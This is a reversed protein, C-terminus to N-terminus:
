LLVLVFVSKRITEIEHLARKQVSLMKMQNHVLYIKMQKLVCGKTNSAEYNKSTLMM